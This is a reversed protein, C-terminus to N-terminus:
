SLKVAQLFFRCFFVSRSLFVGHKIWKRCYVRNLTSDSEWKWKSVVSVSIVESLRTRSVLSGCPPSFVGPNWGFVSFVAYTFSGNQSLVSFLFVKVSSFWHQPESHVQFDSCHTLFMMWSCHLVESVMTITNNNNRFGNLWKAARIWVFERTNQRQM